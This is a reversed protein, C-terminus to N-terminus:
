GPVGALRGSAPTTNLLAGFTDLISFISEGEEPYSKNIWYKSSLRGIWAPRALNEGGNPLKPKRCNSLRIQCKASTESSKCKGDPAARSTADLRHQRGLERMGPYSGPSIHRSGPEPMAHTTQFKIACYFNVLFRSMGWCVSNLQSIGPEKGALPIRM